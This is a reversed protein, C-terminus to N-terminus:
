VQRPRSRKKLLGAQIVIGFVLLFVFLVKRLQPGFHTARMVLESGVVSSLVILAWDFFMQMLFAGAIGGAIFLLWYYHGSNAGFEKLLAPLLYGGAIFGGALIASKQLLVAALACAIGAVVAIVFIAGQPGHFLREAVDFGLIFGVIGLFLWFLNRGATLMALGLLLRLLAM